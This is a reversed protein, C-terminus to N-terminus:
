NPTTSREVRVLRVGFRDSSVDLFQPPPYHGPGHESPSSPYIPYNAPVSAIETDYRSVEDFGSTFDAMYGATDYIGVDSPYRTAVRYNPGTAWGLGLDGQYFGLNGVSAATYQSRFPVAYGYRDDMRNLKAIYAAVDNGTVMNVPFEPCMGVGNMTVYDDPCDSFSRHVSPNTGMLLVWQFQTVQTAQMDFSRYKLPSFVGGPICEPNSLSCPIEVAGGTVHVIRAGTPSFSGNAFPALEIHGKIVDTPFGLDHGQKLDDLLVNKWQSEAPTSALRGLEQQLQYRRYKLRIEMAQRERQDWLTDLRNEWRRIIGQLLAVQDPNRPDRPANAPRRAILQRDLEEVYWRIGIPHGVPKFGACHRDYQSAERPCEGLRVLQNADTMYLVPVTSPAVGGDPGDAFATSPNASVAAGALVALAAAAIPSRHFSIRAFTKFM